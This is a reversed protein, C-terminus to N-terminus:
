FIFLKVFLYMMVYHMISYFVKEARGLRATCQNTKFELDEKKSICEDYKAQLSAIGEEVEALKAKAKDLQRQTEQM